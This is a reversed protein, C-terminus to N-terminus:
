PSRPLFFAEIIDNVMSSSPLSSLPLARCKKNGPFYGGQFFRPYGRANVINGGPESRLRIYCVAQFFFHFLDIGTVLLELLGRM